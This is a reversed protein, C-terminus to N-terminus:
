SIRKGFYNQLSFDTMMYRGKLYCPKLFPNGINAIMSFFSFGWNAFHSAKTDTFKEFVSSQRFWSIKITFSFEDDYSSYLQNTM